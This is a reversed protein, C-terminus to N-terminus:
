LAISSNKEEKETNKVRKIKLECEFGSLCVDQLSRLGCNGRAVNMFCWQAVICNVHVNFNWYLEEIKMWMIKQRHASM